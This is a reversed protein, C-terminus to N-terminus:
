NFPKIYLTETKEKSANNLNFLNNEYHSEQEFRKAELRKEGIQGPTQQEPDDVKLYTPELNITSHINQHLTISFKRDNEYESCFCM